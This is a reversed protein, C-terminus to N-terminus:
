VLYVDYKYPVKVHTLWTLFPKRYFPYVCSTCNICQHSKDTVLMLSIFIVLYIGRTHWWSTDSIKARELVECTSSQHACSLSFPGEFTIFRLWLHFVRWIHGRRSEFESPLSRHDLASDVLGRLRGNLVESIVLWILYLIDCIPLSIIPHSGSVIYWLYTSQYYSSIWICYIVFLYVSLLIWLCYIVFLYVSLLILDLYFGSCWFCIM